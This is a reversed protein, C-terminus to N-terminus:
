SLRRSIPSGEYKHCAGGAPCSSCNCGCSSKGEKKNKVMSYIVLGIIVTLILSVIITGLNEILWNIM